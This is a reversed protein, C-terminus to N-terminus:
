AASPKPMFEPMPVFPTHLEHQMQWMEMVGNWQRCFQLRFQPMLWGMEAQLRTVAAPVESLGSLGAYSATSEVMALRKKFGDEVAEQRALRADLSALVAGQETATREPAPDDAITHDAARSDLAKVAAEFVQAMEGVRRELHIVRKEAAVAKKEAAAAKKEAAAAKTEAVDALQEAGAARALADDVRKTAGAMANKFVDPVRAAQDVTPPTSPGAAFQRLARISDRFNDPHGTMFALRIATTAVLALDRQLGKEADPLASKKVSTGADVDALELRRADDMLRASAKRLLHRLDEETTDVTGARPMDRVRTMWLGIGHDLDEAVDRAMEQTGLGGTKTVVTLFMLFTVMTCEDGSTYFAYLADFPAPSAAFWMAMNRVLQRQIVGVYPLSPAEKETAWAAVVNKFFKKLADTATVIRCAM